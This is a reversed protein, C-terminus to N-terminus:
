ATSRRKGDAGIVAVTTFGSRRPDRRPDDYRTVGHTKTFLYRWAGKARDPDALQKVADAQADDKEKNLLREVEADSTHNLTWEMLRFDDVIAGPGFTRLFRTEYEAIPRAGQYVLLWFLYRGYLRRFAGPNAKYTTGTEWDGLIRLAERIRRAATERHRRNPKRRVLYWRGWGMYVLDANSDVARLGRLVDVPALYIHPFDPFWTEPRARDDDRQVAFWSWVRSILAHFM